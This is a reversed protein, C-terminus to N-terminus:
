YAVDAVDCEGDHEDEEADDRQGAERGRPPAPRLVHHVQVLPPEAPAAKAGEDPPEQDPAVKYRTCLCMNGLQNVPMAKEAMTMPASTGAAIMAMAAALRNVRLM